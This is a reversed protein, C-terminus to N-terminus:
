SATASGPMPAREKLWDLLGALAPAELPGGGDYTTVTHNRRGHALFLTYTYGDAIPQGNGVEAPLDFFSTATIFQRLKQAEEDSLTSDDAEYTSTWGGIGGTQTFEVRLERDITQRERRFRGERDTRYRFGDGLVIFYGPTIVDACGEDPEPLGLCSDPWERAELAHVAIEESPVRLLNAADDIVTALATVAPHTYESM